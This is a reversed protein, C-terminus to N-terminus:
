KTYNFEITAKHDAFTINTDYFWDVSSVAGFYILVFRKFIEYKEPYSESNRFNHVNLDSISVTVFEQIMGNVKFPVSAIYGGIAYEPQVHSYYPQLYENINNNMISDIINNEGIVSFEPLTDFPDCIVEPKEYQVKDWLQSLRRDLEKMIHIQDDSMGVLSIDNKCANQMVEDKPDWFMNRWSTNSSQLTHKKESNHYPMAYEGFPLSKSVNHKINDFVENIFKNRATNLNSTIDIRNKM